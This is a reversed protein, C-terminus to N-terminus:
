FGFNYFHRFPVLQPGMNIVEAQQIEIDNPNVYQVKSISGPTLPPANMTNSLKQIQLSELGIEPKEEWAGVAFLGNSASKVVKALKRGEPSYFGGLAQWAVKTAVFGITNSEPGGTRQEYVKLEFARLIKIAAADRLSTYKASPELSQIIELLCIRTTNYLMEITACVHNAIHIDKGLQSTSDDLQSENFEVFNAHIQELESLLLHVELVIGSSKEVLGLSKALDREYRLRTSEALIAFVRHRLIGAEDKQICPIRKWDERSYLSPRSMALAGVISLLRLGHFILATEGDPNEPPGRIELMSEIGRMHKLFNSPGTPLFIELLMCTLATLITENTTQLDPQAIHDNLQRLVKGYMEYGRNKIKAQRHQSGYFTVALSMISDRLLGISPQGHDDVFGNNFQIM